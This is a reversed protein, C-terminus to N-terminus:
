QIQSSEFPHYKSWAELFAQVLAESFKSDNIHLPLRRVVRHSTQKVLRELESFLTENALPDYFPQGPSDLVSVGKEPILLTIPATSRNLKNAIWSAFQSNEEATTRMLTVQANHVHLRRSRVNEPVTDMAGFNVMDLAGLSMVYPVGSNLIADFRDPGAPFVGGVVEDAVETTTIDLVGRILGAEVLKEMARGGTGTAHFVLSDFGDADLSSRVANVCTTTVGFMTMGITPRDTSAISSEEKVMGAMANAANTLVRRSVSNLGAVDVVSPFMVLDSGGIYAAVNGSAVTSVIVKPLGIPLAQMAPAILSTGGSGGLGIVGLVRGSGFERALYVRLAVSTAEIARSRDTQKLVADMGNPHCAAVSERSVDSQWNSNGLTSVDVTVVSLGSDKLRKAVFALEEGKTDMTAIAFIKAIDRDYQNSM